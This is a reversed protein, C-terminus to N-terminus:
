GVSAGIGTATRCVALCTLLYFLNSASAMNSASHADLGTRPWGTSALLPQNGIATAQQRARDAKTPTDYTSKFKTTEFSTFAEM